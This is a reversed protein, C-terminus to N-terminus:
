PQVKTQQGFRMNWHRELIFKLLGSPVTDLGFGSAASQLAPALVSVLKKVEHAFREAGIDNTHDLARLFAKSSIECDGWQLMWNQHRISLNSV